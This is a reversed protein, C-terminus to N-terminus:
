YDVVAMLALGKGLSTVGLYRVKGSKNISLRFLSIRRTDVAGCLPRQPLPLPCTVIVAVIGPSVLSDSIPVHDQPLPAASSNKTSIASQPGPQCPQGPSTKTSTAHLTAPIPLGQPLKNVKLPRSNGKKVNLMVWKTM